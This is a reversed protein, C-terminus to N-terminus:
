LTTEGALVRQWAMERLTTMGRAIAETRIESAPAQDMCLRRIRSNSTLLEFIALRATDPIIANAVATPEISRRSPQCSSIKRFNMAILCMLCEVHVACGGFLDKRWCVKSRAPFRYPEVGMDVLRTFASPADNTHITSLWLTATLSAQIASTATEADRIEGILM